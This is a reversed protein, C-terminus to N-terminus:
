WIALSSSKMEEEINIFSDSPLFSNSQVSMIQQGSLWM